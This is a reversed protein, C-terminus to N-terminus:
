EISTRGERADCLDAVTALAHRSLSGLATAALRQHRAQTATLAVRDPTAIVADPTLWCVPVSASFVVYLPTDGGITGAARANLLDRFRDPWDEKGSMHTLQRHDHALYLACLQGSRATRLMRVAALVQAITHM